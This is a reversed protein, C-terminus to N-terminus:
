RQDDHRAGNQIQVALQQDTPTATCILEAAVHSMPKGQMGAWTRFRRAIDRPVHAVIRVTAQPVEQVEPVATM